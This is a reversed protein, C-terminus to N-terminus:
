EGLVGPQTVLTTRALENPGIVGSRFATSDPDRPELLMRADQPDVWRAHIEAEYEFGPDLLLLMGVQLHRSMARLQSVVRVTNSSARPWLRGCEELGSKCMWFNWSANGMEVADAWDVAWFCRNDTRAKVDTTGGPAVYFPQSTLEYERLVPGQMARYTATYSGPPVGKLLTSGKEFNFLWTEAFSGLGPETSYRLLDLGLNKLQAASVGEPFGWDIRLAGPAEGVARMPLEIHQIASSTWDLDLVANTLECGLLNARVEFTQAASEGTTAAPEVVGIRPHLPLYVEGYGEREFVFQVFADEIRHNSDSRPDEISLGVRRMGDNRSAEGNLRFSSGLLREGPGLSLEHGEPLIPDVQAFKARRCDLFLVQGNRGHITRDTRGYSFWDPHLGIVGILSEHLVANGREDTLAAVDFGYSGSQMSFRPVASVGVLPMGAPDSAHVITASRPLMWYRRDEPAEDRLLGFLRAESLSFPHYGEARLEWSEEPARDLQFQGRLESDAAWVGCLEGEADVLSLEPLVEPEEGHFALDLSWGFESDSPNAERRDEPPMLQGVPAATSAAQLSESESYPASATSNLVGDPMRRSDGDTLWWWLGAFVFLVSAILLLSRSM